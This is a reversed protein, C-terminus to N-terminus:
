DAWPDEGSVARVIDKLENAIDELGARMGAIAITPDLGHSVLVTGAAHNDAKDALRGLTEVQEETIRFRPPDAPADNSPM